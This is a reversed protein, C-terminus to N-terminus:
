VNQGLIHPPEARTLDGMKLTVGPGPRHDSSHHEAVSSEAKHGAPCVM